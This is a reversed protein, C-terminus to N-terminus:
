FKMTAPTPMVEPELKVTGETPFYRYSRMGANMVRRAELRLWTKLVDSISMEDNRTIPKTMFGGHLAQIYIEAVSIGTERSYASQMWYWNVIVDINPDKIRRMTQQEELEEQPFEHTTEKKSVVRQYAEALLQERNEEIWEVNAVGVVAVPLWRRNGTEDKLYEGQNTTMAFVCRRPHPMTARGYPSRYKDVQTTIVSKLQKVETRSLTEGESFEIIANGQMLLFFDKQETSITTEVHGLIGALAGLSTSKKIGQKGELVLVYDFKCGPQVVRKVLGKLWNAGVTKHYEDSTTGFAKSLWTDLRAEGDWKLSQIYDRGSDIQNDYAVKVLADFTMEKSVHAFDSFLVSIKTQIDVADRDELPRWVGNVKREIIARYADYRLTQAFAPHKQIVRTINETNKYYIKRKDKEVYMLDLEEIGMESEGHHIDPDYVDTCREIAANISRTRYDDREQTKKRTGLPSALWIQEMEVADKGTWFALHSLFAMDARSADDGYQSIDGNYLKEIDAGNSANFMKKVISSSIKKSSRPKSLKKAADLAEESFLPSGEERGNYTTSTGKLKWPYGLQKLYVLAQEPSIKRVKSEKGFSKQTVTFYRGATYCEYGGHRNAELELPESLEFYLHLGTGSPSIETYTDCENLFDKLFKFEKSAWRWESKNEGIWEICHDIDIGLLLKESSFTIGIQSNRENATAFTAWTKPDTSSAMKGTHPDIPIKTKKGKREQLSWIVWRAEKGYRKVLPNM